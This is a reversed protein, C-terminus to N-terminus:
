KGQGLKEILEAARETMSYIDEQAFIRAQDLWHQRATTLVSELANAVSKGTVSGKLVEGLRRTEVYPAYGCVDTVVAPLGAVM